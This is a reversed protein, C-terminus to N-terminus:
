FKNGLAKYFLTFMRMTVNILSTIEVIWVTLELAICLFLAFLKCANIVIQKSRCLLHHLKYLCWLHINWIRFTHVDVCDIVIRNYLGYSYFLIFFPFLIIFIKYYFKYFLIKSIKKNQKTWWIVHFPFVFSSSSIQLSLFSKLVAFAFTNFMHDSVYTYKIIIVFVASEETGENRIWHNLNSFSHTNETYWIVKVNFQLNLKCSMCM